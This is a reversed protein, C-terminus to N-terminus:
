PTPENRPALASSGMHQHVASAIAGGLATPGAKHMMPRSRDAKNSGDPAATPNAGLLRKLEAQIAAGILQSDNPARGVGEDLVLREIHVSVSAPRM